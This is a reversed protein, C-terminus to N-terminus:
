MFMWPSLRLALMSMSDKPLSAKMCQFPGGRWRASLRTLFVRSICNLLLEQFKMVWSLLDSDVTIFLISVTSLLTGNKQARKYSYSYINHIMYKTESRFYKQLIIFLMRIKEHKKVKSKTSFWASNLVNQLSCIDMHPCKLVKGARCRQITPTGWNM